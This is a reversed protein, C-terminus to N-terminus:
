ESRNDGNEGELKSKDPPELPGVWDCYCTVPTSWEGSIGFVRSNSFYVTEWDGLTGDRHKEKAWYYGEETPIM